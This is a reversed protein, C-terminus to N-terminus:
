RRQAVCAQLVGCYGSDGSSDLRSRLWLLFQVVMSDPHYITFWANVEDEASRWGASKSVMSGYVADVIEM